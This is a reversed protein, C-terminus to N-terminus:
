PSGRAKGRARFLRETFGGDQLFQRELQRLQQDLLYNTQHVVCMISNASIEPSASEFYSMYTTYSRNPAYALGRVKKQRLTM